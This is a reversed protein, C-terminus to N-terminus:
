TWVRREGPTAVLDGTEVTGRLTRYRYPLLLTLAPGRDRHELEVRVADGEPSEVPAVFAVARTGESMATVSEYLLDLVAESAPHDGEGPDAAVMEPEGDLPLRVGFPYFEGRQKALFYRAASLAEDALLDLDDQVTQPTEDRWSM